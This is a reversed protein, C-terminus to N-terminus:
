IGLPILPFIIKGLSKGRSGVLKDYLKGQFFIKGLFDELFKLFFIIKQLTEEPSEGSFLIKGKTGRCVSYTIM